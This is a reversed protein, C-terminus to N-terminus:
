FSEIKELCVRILHGIKGCDFYKIISESTGYFTYNFDEVKVDFSLNLEDANNKLVM